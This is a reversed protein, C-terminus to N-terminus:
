LTTVEEIVGGRSEVRVLVPVLVPSVLSYSM